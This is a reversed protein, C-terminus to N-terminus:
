KSYSMSQPDSLRHFKCITNWLSITITYLYM